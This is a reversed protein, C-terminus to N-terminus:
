GCVAQVAAATFGGHFVSLTALLRAPSADLLRWSWEIVLLM